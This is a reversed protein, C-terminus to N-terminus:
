KSLADIVDILFYLLPVIYVYFSVITIAVPAIMTGTNALGGCKLSVASGDIAPSSGAIVDPRSPTDFVDTTIRFEFTDRILRTEM